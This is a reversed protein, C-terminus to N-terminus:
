RRFKIIMPQRHPPLDLLHPSPALLRSAPVVLHRASVLLHRVPLEPVLLHNPRLRPYYPPLRLHHHPPNLLHPLEVLRRPTRVHQPQRLTLRQPGKLACAM